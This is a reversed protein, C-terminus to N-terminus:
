FNTVQLTEYNFSTSATVTGDSEYCASVRCQAGPSRGRPGRPNVSRAMDVLEFPQGTELRPEAEAGLVATTDPRRFGDAGAGAGPNRGHTVPPM